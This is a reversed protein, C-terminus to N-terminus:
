NKRLCRRALLGVSAILVVSSLTLLGQVRMVDIPRSGGGEEGRAAGTEAQMKKKLSIALSCTEQTYKTFLSLQPKSLPQMSSKINRFADSSIDKARQLDDKELKNAVKKLQSLDDKLATMKKLHKPDNPDSRTEEAQTESGLFDASRFAAHDGGGVQAEQSLYKYLVNCTKLHYLDCISKCLTMTQTAMDKTSAASSYAM